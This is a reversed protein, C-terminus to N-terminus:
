LLVVVPKGGRFPVVYIVAPAICAYISVLTKKRDSVNHALLRNAMM